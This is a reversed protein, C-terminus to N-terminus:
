SYKYDCVERIFPTLLPVSFNIKGYILLDNRLFRYNLQWHVLLIQMQQSLLVLVFLSYSIFVVRVLRLPWPIPKM